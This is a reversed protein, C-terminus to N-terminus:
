TGSADLGRVLVKIVGTDVVQGKKLKVKVPKATFWYPTGPEALLASDVLTDPILVDPHEGYLGELDLLRAVVNGKHLRELKFPKGFKQPSTVTPMLWSQAGDDYGRLGIPAIVPNGNAYQMRGKLVAGEPAAFTAKPANGSVTLSHLTTAVNGGTATGKNGRDRYSTTQLVSYFGPVLGHSTYTGASTARETWVLAM